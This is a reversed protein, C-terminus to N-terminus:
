LSVWGHCVAGGAVGLDRPLGPDEEACRAPFGGSSGVSEEEVVGAGVALLGIVGFQDAGSANDSSSFVSSPGVCVFVAELDM